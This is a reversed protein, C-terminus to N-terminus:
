GLEEDVSIHYRVSVTHHGPIAGFQTSSFALRFNGDDDTVGHSARKGVEEPLFEVMTSPVPHGKYTLRGTVKYLDSGGCGSAALLFGVVFLCLTHHQLKM